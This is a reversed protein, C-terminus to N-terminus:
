NTRQVYNMKGITKGTDIIKTFWKLTIVNTVQEIPIHVILILHGDALNNEFCYESKKKLYCFPKVM